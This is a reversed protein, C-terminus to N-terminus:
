QKIWKLTSNVGDGKVNIMYVGNALTSAPLAISNAGKDMNSNTQWVLKGTMDTVVVQLTQAQNLSLQLSAQNGSPNPVVAIAADTSVGQVSQPFAVIAAGDVANYDTITKGDKDILTPMMFQLSIVEGPQATAPVEFTLTAITGNGDANQQDIRAYAWDITGNNIDKNFNLTNSANGLWSTATGITAQTNPESGNVTVAVRTGLGYFDAMPDATTGLKIPVSVTTGPTFVVGNVDFFLDPVGTTKNRDGEKPHTLGWNTAIPSLDSVNVTGDGNCDAHKKDTSTLPINSNWDQAGQPVWNNTANARAPGTSNYTLAVALPDLLNVIKDSNADGPWVSDPNCGIVRVLFPYKTAARPCNNDYVNLTLFFFSGGSPITSAPYIWTEGTAVQLGPQAVTHYGWGTTTYPTDVEIFVSDTSTPDTFGYRATDARGPCTYLELSGFSSSYTPYTYSSGGPLSMAAFDRIHSGILTGNRYEDVRYALAFMGSMTSKLTVSEDVGNGSLTYTGATGFPTTASYGGASYGVSTNHAVLPAIRTFTVSDGDPDLTYIPATVTNNTPLLLPPHGPTYPSSNAGNSNNLKAELYLNSTTGSSLNNMVTRAGANFSFIWDSATNPLTVVVRYTSIQFGPLNSNPNVCKNVFACQPSADKLSIRQMTINANVSSSASAYNLTATAPLPVGSCDRYLHLYVTYNNGYMYEYRLEGGMLHSASASTTIVGLLLTLLLLKKM